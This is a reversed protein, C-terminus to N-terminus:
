RDHEKRLEVMLCDGWGLLDLSRNPIALGWLLWFLVVRKLWTRASALISASSALGTAPENVHWILSAQGQVSRGLLVRLQLLTWLNPTVTRSWMTRLGRRSALREFGVKNFHHQHYPIHWNIWRLGSIRRWFSDRNPFVMMVRGGPALRKTIWELAAGPEPIHEIVQNLIVLDFQMGPFPDDQITGQHIRLHLREALPGVNPDAEVGYAEGGLGRAVLLSFGSGCGIDLVRDGPVVQFQGQNDNGLWWRIWRAGPALESHAQQEVMEPTLAKRPYYTGYLAPLDQESLRPSTMLHSCAKCRALQFSEPHGYRDDYASRWFALESGGCVPCPGEDDTIEKDSQMM